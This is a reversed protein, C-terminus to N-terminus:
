VSDPQPSKEFHKHSLETHRGIASTFPKRRYVDYRLILHFKYDDGTKKTGQDRHSASRRWLSVRVVRGDVTDAICPKLVYIRFIKRRPQRRTRQSRRIARSRPDIGRIGNIGSRFARCRRRSYRVRSRHVFRLFGSRRWRRSYRIRCRHLLLHFLDFLPQVAVCVLCRRGRRGSRCVPLHHSLLPLDRVHIISKLFIAFGTPEAM